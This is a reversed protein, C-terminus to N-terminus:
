AKRFMLNKGKNYVDNPDIYNMVNVALRPYEFGLNLFGGGKDAGVNINIVNAGVGGWRLSNTPGNLSIVSAGLLSALHMIGTNVSVVLKSGLLVSSYDTLTYKNSINIINLNNVLACIESVKQYDAASGGVLIKFGDQIFLEALIHWSELSWERLNSKYGAACPHFVIYNEFGLDIARNSKILMPSADVSGGAAVSLARFNELEHIQSSHTVTTTYAGSRHQGPTNFGFRLRAGSFFALIASIRVWQSTDVVLDLAQSRIQKIAIIPNNLNIIEVSDFGNILYQAQSNSTTLFLKIHIKPDSKRLSSLVVSALLADGIAGFVFVGIKNANEIKRPKSFLSLLLCIPMGLYADLKRKIVNGRDAAM